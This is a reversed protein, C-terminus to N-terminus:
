IKNVKDVRRKYRTINKFPTTLWMNVIKKALTYSTIRAGLCLANTDSDERAMKVLNVNIGNFARIGKVKNAAICMGVGSGCIFIGRANDLAVKKGAKVAYDVYDDVKEYKVNGVDICEYKLKTLYAILKGKLEYGNHDSAFFILDNNRKQQSM